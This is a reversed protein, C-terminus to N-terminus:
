VAAAVIAEDRRRRGRSIASALEHFPAVLGVRRKRQGDM